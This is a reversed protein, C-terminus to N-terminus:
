NRYAELSNTNPDDFVKVRFRDYYKDRGDLSERQGNMLQYYTKTQRRTGTDWYTM